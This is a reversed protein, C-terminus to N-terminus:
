ADARGKKAKLTLLLASVTGVAVAAAIIKRKSSWRPWNGSIGLLEGPNFANGPTLPAEQGKFHAADIYRGFIREFVAGPLLARSLALTRGAGGVIIETRPENILGYVADAVQAADYLPPVPRVERGTLNAANRYIPTDITSPSVTCVDIGALGQLDLEQRLSASFGRVAFKSAIYPSEYPSAVMGFV